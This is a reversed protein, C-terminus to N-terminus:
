AMGGWDDRGEEGAHVPQLEGMFRSLRRNGGCWHDCYPEYITTYNVSNPFVTWVTGKNPILYPFEDFASIRDTVVDAAIRGRQVPKNRERFILSSRYIWYWWYAKDNYKRQLNEYFVARRFFGAARAAGSACSKITRGKQPCVWINEWWTALGWGTGESLRLISRLIIATAEM